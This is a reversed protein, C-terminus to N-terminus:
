QPHFMSYHVSFMSEYHLCISRQSGKMIQLVEIKSATSGFAIFLGEFINMLGALVPLTINIGCKMMKLPPEVGHKGSYFGADYEADPEPGHQNSTNIYEFQLINMMLSGCGHDLGLGAAGSRREAKRVARWTLTEPRLEIRPQCPSYHRWEQKIRMAM